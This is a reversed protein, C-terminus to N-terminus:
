RSARRRARRSRNRCASGRPIARTGASFSPTLPLYTAGSTNGVFYGTVDFVVDAKKGAVGVFTVWLKGGAGLRVTVANARTDGQPFNLTSTAPTGVPKTPTLSLYGYPGSNWEVTLNGTVAVAGTPVNRNPDASRGTVQFSVPVKNSLSATLGLHTGKRSHVLRNPTVTVYTAGVLPMVAPSAASPHSTGAVNTATVTFTYSVWNTLGSVACSLAGTTDCTLGGPHSLVDYATM